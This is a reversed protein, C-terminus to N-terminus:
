AIAGADEAVFPGGDCVPCQEDVLEDTTEVANSRCGPCAKEDSELDIDVQSECHICFCHSNVGTRRDIERRAADEGIVQRARAMEGPRQCRVRECDDSVAYMYWEWGSPLEFECDPNTCYFEYIRPM